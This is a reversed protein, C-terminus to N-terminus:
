NQDSTGSGGSTLSLAVGVGVGVATGLGANGLVTGIVAGLAIGAALMWGSKYTYFNRLGTGARVTRDGM